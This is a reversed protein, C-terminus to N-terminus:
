DVRSGLKQSVKFRLEPSARCAEVFGKRDFLQVSVSQKGAVFAAEFPVGDRAGQTVTIASVKNFSLEHTGDADSFTFANEGLGLVPQPKRLVRAILYFSAWISVVTWFFLGFSIPVFRILPARVNNIALWLLALVGAWLVLFSIVVLPFLALRGAPTSFFSWKDTWSDQWVM